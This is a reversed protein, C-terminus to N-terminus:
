GLTKICSLGTLKCAATSKMIDFDLIFYGCDSFSLILSTLSIIEKEHMQSVKLNNQLFPGFRTKVKEWIQIESLWLKRLKYGTRSELM